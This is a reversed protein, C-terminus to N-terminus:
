YISHRCKTLMVYLVNFTHPLCILRTDVETVTFLQLVEEIVGVWVCQRSAAVCYIPLVVFLSNMYGCIILCVSHEHPFNYVCQLYRIPSSRLSHVIDGSVSQLLLRSGFELNLLPLYHHM